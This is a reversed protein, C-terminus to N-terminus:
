ELGHLAWWRPNKNEIRKEFKVPKARCRNQRVGTETWGLRAGADVGFLLSEDDASDIISLDVHKQILNRQGFPLICIRFTGVFRIICAGMCSEHHMEWM